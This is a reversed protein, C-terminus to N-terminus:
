QAADLIAQAGGELLQRGLRTGLEAAESVSGSISRRVVISGDPSVAVAQLEIADGTASAFAGVPLHCGGGLVALVAREATIAARTDPHNLMQCAQVAPGGDDRTEIALSGQGAAPCMLDPTLYQAIRESWGLRKLGSAALVIADFQGEDLKRLRTDVNGRIGEVWLDPRAHKLQAVRRLSGTGVRAGQSLDELGRGVLADRPDEREPTATLALGSPIEAPMDKLSHVALDIRGDLLAEEIEKTFLGKNGIEKLPGAQFKDGTTQIVEIRIQHGVAELKERIYNAQWLALKSGRSGITLKM